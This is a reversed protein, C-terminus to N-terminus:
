ATGVFLRAQGLSCADGGYALSEAHVLLMQVLQKVFAVNDPVARFM